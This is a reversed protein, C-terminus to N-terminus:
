LGKCNNRSFTHWSSRDYFRASSRCKQMPFASKWWCIHLWNELYWHCSYVELFLFWMVRSDLVMMYFCLWDLFNNYPTDNFTVRALGIDCIKLKCNANALVNKSKLDRHFLNTTHIYKLARLHKYLFFQYHEPTLDDNAKIVQDLNSEM